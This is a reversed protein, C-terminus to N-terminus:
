KNTLQYKIKGIDWIRHYGNATCNEVETQSPDYTALKSSLRAHRFNFKHFRQYGKVWYYDPKLIDVQEWGTAEYLHGDSWRLDAFTTVRNWDNHRCFHRVLKTFGGPVRRSTAYRLLEWEGVQHRRKFVIAAVLENNYMLGYSVTGAIDGIYHNSELFKRRTDKDINIVTCQRAYACEHSAMNIKHKITNIVREKNAVWEDEFVTILRIGQEACSMFKNFHYDKDCRPESHWYLGCYEIALKHEPLYIDLEYPPIITRSNQIVEVNCQRLQDAIQTEAISFTYHQTPIGHSHLYRGVTTGNVGLEAAIQELHKENTVHQDYLWKADKLLTYADPNLTQRYSLGGQAERYEKLRQRFMDSEVFLMTGYKSLTTQKIKSRVDHNKWPHDTGYNKQWTEKRKLAISEVHNLNTTGYRQQLTHQRNILWESTKSPHTTGYKALNTQKTKEKVNDLKATNTVGYKEITRKTREDIGCLTCGCSQLHRSPTQEIFGHIPCGIIVKTNANKYIVRSYDYKTGHLDRAKNLFEHLLDDKDHQMM